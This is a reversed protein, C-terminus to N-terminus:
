SSFLWRGLIDHASELQSLPVSEDPSHALSPDGPGFNVSPIGAASLRSVDTWGYKPAPAHGVFSVFDKALASDVGPRAGPAADVIEVDYGDCFESVYGIAEDVSRDPAFRFNITISATDPVVNGAVGGSVGVAQLSERYELGEVARTDPTHSALRELVASLAHIANHGMWPRASHAQKGTATVVARLTGNCGGEILANSPEGLIGFDAVMWDPHAQAFLGLGNKEADVEEQDYFVWTVSHRAPAPNMAHILHSAVGGKMDVSGRGWLMGGDIRAPLCGSVPVTDIHGAILVRSPSDAITRAAVTNGHRIVEVHSAGMLTAEIRDALHKESGSVSEIDCLVRTLEIVGVDIPLATPASSV